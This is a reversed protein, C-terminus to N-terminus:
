GTRVRDRLRGILMEAWQEIAAAEANSVERRAHVIAARVRLMELSQADPLGFEADARALRAGLGEIGAYREALADELRRFADIIRTTATKTSEDAGPPAELLEAISELWAQLRTVLEPDAPTTQELVSAEIGGFIQPVGSPGAVVATATRRGIFQGRALYAEFAGGGLTTDVVVAAARRLLALVAADLSGSRPDVDYATAPVLGLSHVVPFVQARYFALLEEPVVFLVLRRGSGLLAERVSEDRIVSVDLSHQAVHDRLHSFLGAYVESPPRKGAKIPIVTVGRRAFRAVTEPKPDLEFAYVPQQSGGLRSRVAALIQRWDPDSLSYGILVPVRTILLNALYTALLPRRLLFEDYDDETAILVPENELDGHAKVLTVADRSVGSSLQHERVVTNLRRGVARYGDEILDDFNTTVVIDFPLHALARHAAGARAEGFHIARRLRAVLALRGHEHGYTSLAEVPGGGPVLLRVEHELEAGLQDWTPMMAGPPLEANRSFGAGVLPLWRNEILDDLLPQPIDFQPKKAM